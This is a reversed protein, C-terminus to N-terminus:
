WIKGSVIIGFLAAVILAIIQGTIAEWRKGGKGELEGIREGQKALSREIKIISTEFKDSIDKVQVALTKVNAALEYIGQTIHDNEDIRKHASKISEALAALEKSNQLIQNEYEM